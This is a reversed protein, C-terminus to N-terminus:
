KHRSCILVDPAQNIDTVAGHVGYCADTFIVVQSSRNRGNNVIGEVFVSSTFSAKRQAAAVTQFTSGAVGM